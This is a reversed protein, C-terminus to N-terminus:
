CEKYEKLELLKKCVIESETRREEIGMLNRSKKIKKRFYDKDM